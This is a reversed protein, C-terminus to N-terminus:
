IAAVFTPTSCNKWLIRLLDVHPHIAESLIGFAIELRSNLQVNSLNSISKLYRCYPWHLPPSCSTGQLGAPTFSISPLPSSSFREIIALETREQIDQPQSYRTILSQCTKFHSEESLQAQLFPGSGYSYCPQSVAYSKNLRLRLQYITNRYSKFLAFLHDLQKM